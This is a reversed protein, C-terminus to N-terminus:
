YNVLISRIFLLSLGNSCFFHGRQPLENTQLVEAFHQHKSIFIGASVMSVM